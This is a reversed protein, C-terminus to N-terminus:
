VNIMNFSRIKMIFYIISVLVAAGLLSRDDIAEGIARWIRDSWCTWRFVDENLWLWIYKMAELANNDFPQKQYEKEESDGEEINSSARANILLQIWWVIAFTSFLRSCSHLICVANSNKARLNWETPM